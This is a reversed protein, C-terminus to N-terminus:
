QLSECIRKFNEFPCYRKQGKSPKKGESQPLTKEALDSHIWSIKGKQFCVLKKTSEVGVLDRTFIIIPQVLTSCRGSPSIPTSVFRGYWSRVTAIHLKVLIAFAGCIFKPQNNLNRYWSIKRTRWIPLDHYGAFCSRVVSFFTSGQVAKTCDCKLFKNNKSPIEALDSSTWEPIKSWKNSWRNNNRWCVRIIMPWYLSFKIVNAITVIVFYSSHGVLLKHRDSRETVTVNVKNCSNIPVGYPLLLSSSLLM